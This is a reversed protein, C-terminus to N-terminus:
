FSTQVKSFILFCQVLFNELNREGRLLLERQTYHNEQRKRFLECFVQSGCLSAKKHSMGWIKNTLYYIGVSVQFYLVATLINCSFTAFHESYLYM